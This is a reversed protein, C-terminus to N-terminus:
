HQRKPINLSHECCCCFTGLLSESLDEDSDHAADLVCDSDGELAYWQSYAGSGLRPREPLDNQPQHSQEPIHAIEITDRNWYTGPIVADSRKSRWSSSRITGTDFTRRRAAM